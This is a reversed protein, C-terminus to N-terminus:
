PESEPSNSLDIQRQSAYRLPHLMRRITSPYGIQSHGRNTSFIRHRFGDTFWCDNELKTMILLLLIRYM